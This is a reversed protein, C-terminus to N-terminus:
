LAGEEGTQIICIAYNKTIETHVIKNLKDLPNTPIKM